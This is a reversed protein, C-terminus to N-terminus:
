KNSFSLSILSASAAQYTFFVFNTFFFELNIFFPFLIIVVKSAAAATKTISLSLIRLLQLARYENGQKLEFTRANHATSLRRTEARM